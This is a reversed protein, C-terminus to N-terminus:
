LEFMKIKPNLDMGSEKVIINKRSKLYNNIQINKPIEKKFSEVKELKLLYHNEKIKEFDNFIDNKENKESILKILIMGYNSNFIIEHIKQNEISFIKIDLVKLLKVDTNNFILNFLSVSNNSNTTKKVPLNNINFIIKKNNKNYEFKINNLLKHINVKNDINAKNDVNAKNKKINCFKLLILLILLIIIYLM